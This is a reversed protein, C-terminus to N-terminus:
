SLQASSSIHPSARAYIALFILHFDQILSVKVEYVNSLDSDILCSCRVFMAVISYVIVYFFSFNSFTDFFKTFELVLFLYM